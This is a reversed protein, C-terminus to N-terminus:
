EEERHIAHALASVKNWHARIFLRFAVPDIHGVDYGLQREVLRALQTAALLAEAPTTAPPYTSVTQPATPCGTYPRPQPPEM